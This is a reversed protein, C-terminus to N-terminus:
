NLVQLLRYAAKGPEYGSEIRTAVTVDKIPLICSSNYITLGDITLNVCINDTLGELVEETINRAISENGMYFFSAILDLVSKDLDIETLAGEDILRKVTPKDQIYRVELFTLLNMVDDALYSLKEYQKEPLISEFEFFAFTMLIIVTLSLGILVDMTFVFGKRMGM